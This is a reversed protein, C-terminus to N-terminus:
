EPPPADVGDSMRKASDPLDPPPANVGMRKVSDPL